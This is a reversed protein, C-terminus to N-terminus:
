GRDGKDDQTKPAPHLNTSNMNWKQCSWDIQLARVGPKTQSTHIWLNALQHTIAKWYICVTFITNCLVINPIKAWQTKAHNNLDLLGSSVSYYLVPSFSLVFVKVESYICSVCFEGKVTITQRQLLTSANHPLTQLPQFYKHTRLCKIM